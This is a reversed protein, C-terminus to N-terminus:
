KVMKGMADYVVGDRLIFLKGNEFFKVANENGNINEISTTNNEENFIYYRAPAGSFNSKKIRLYAKHAGNLFGAGENNMWYFGVSSIENLNNLSLGYYYYETNNYITSEEDTGLLGNNALKTGQNATTFFDYDGQAGELVVGCDKPIVEGATYTESKNLKNTTTDFIYATVGEPVILNEFRYYLTAYGVESITVLHKDKALYINGLAVNGSSKNTYVWKIYRVTSELNFLENQTSGLETYTELDTYSTGDASTQVKFTGGSFSNGKIDFALTGPAENIKLIINDGTGDFKLYPSSAYKEDVGNNTIGTPTTSYGNWEFPLTAYDVVYHAQTVTIVKDAADTYSLTITAQRDTEGENATTNFTVKDSTVNIDSIWDATTNAQLDVAQVPNTITYSIEGSTADYALNVNEANIVPTTVEEASEMMVTFTSSSFGAFYGKVHVMKDLLADLATKQAETPYSIRATATGVAFEYNNGDKSLLGEFQVYDSLQYDKNYTAIAAADVSIVAPTGNYNSTQTTAIDATSTFQLIHGYSGTTGDIVVKDNVAYSHAANLYTYVYGTGDGIVFGKANTAVVTGKVKYATSMAIIESINDVYNTNGAQTVTINKIVTESTNYTYTLKVTATRATAYQNANCTFAIPSTFSQGLSLWDGDTVEASVVGGTVPNNIIYTISGGTADYTINVDNGSISPNTNAVVTVKIKTARVQGGSATFTVSEADGEWVGDNSSTTWGAQTEFRSAPYSSVGLFEIKTIHSGDTTSITTTSNQYLRYETGNGLIGDNCSYTVNNNTISGAGRSTNNLDKDVTADFIAGNFPTSDTVTMEYTKSSPKYQDTVGAYSATFTVTGAAVLTVAGTTANITAVADNNGSWTVTAGGITASNNDKVTASLSGAATGAYVDTNTIGAADITTTTAVSLDGAPTGTITISNIGAGHSSGASTANTCTFVFVAATMSATPTFEINKLATTASTGTADVTGQSVGGISADITAKSGTLTGYRRAKISITVKSYGSLDLAPSTINEGNGIIVCDTRGVGTGTTSWGTTYTANKGNFTGSAITVDEGWAYGISLLFGLLLFSLIKKM